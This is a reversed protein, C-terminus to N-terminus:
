GADDQANRPKRDHPTGDSRRGRAVSVPQGPGRCYRASGGSPLRASGCAHSVGGNRWARWPHCLECCRRCQSVFTNHRGHSAATRNDRMAPRLHDHGSLWRGAGGAHDSPGAGGERTMGGKGAGQAHAEDQKQRQNLKQPRVTRVPHIAKRKVIRPDMEGERAMKVVPMAEGVREVVGRRRSRCRGEVSREQRHQEPDDAVLLDQAICEIQDEM